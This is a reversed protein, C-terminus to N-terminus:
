LYKKLKKPNQLKEKKGIKTDQHSQPLIKNNQTLDTILEGNGTYAIGTNFIMCGLM